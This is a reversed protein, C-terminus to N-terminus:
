QGRRPWCPPGTLRSCRICRALRVQGINGQSILPPSCLKSASPRPLKDQDAFVLLCSPGSYISCPSTHFRRGDFSARSALVRVLRLDIKWRLKRYETPTMELDSPEVGKEGAETEYYGTAAGYSPDATLRSRSGPALDSACRHKIKENEESPPTVDRNEVAAM